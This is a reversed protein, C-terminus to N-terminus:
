INILFFVGLSDPNKKQQITPSIIKPEDYYHMGRKISPM